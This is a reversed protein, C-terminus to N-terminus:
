VARRKRVEGSLNRVLTFCVVRLVLGDCCMPGLCDYVTFCTHRTTGFGCVCVFVCVDVPFCADIILWM